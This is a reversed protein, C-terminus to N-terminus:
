RRPTRVPDPPAPLRAARYAGRRVKGADDRLPADVREFSRPTKYPALHSRMHARLEDDSAEASLFVLAHPVSGLDDDPWGIVCADAVAPHEM